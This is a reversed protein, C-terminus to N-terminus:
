SLAEEILEAVGTRAALRRLSPESQALWRGTRRAEVLDRSEPSAARWDRRCDVFYQSHEASRRRRAAVRAGAEAQDEYLASPALAATLVTAAGQAPTRFLRSALGSRQLASCLPAGLQRRLMPTWVLGPHVDHVSVGRSACSARLLLSFHMLGLKSQAQPPAPPM